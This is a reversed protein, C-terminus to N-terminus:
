RGGTGTRLRRLLRLSDRLFSETQPNHPRRATVPAPEPSPATKPQADPSEATKTM